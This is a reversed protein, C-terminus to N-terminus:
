LHWPARMAGSLMRNAEDDGVFREGQPDWRLRRGLRIAIDSLHYITTSRHAVEAPAISQKRTRVCELFHLSHNTSRPLHIEHPRLTVKLLSKPHADASFANGYAFSWGESGEFRAGVERYRLGKDTSKFILRVGNAYTCEVRWSIATDNFGDTPFVGRGEVEVPGTRETANGWQAIDIPHVGCGAIWGISYDSRLQWAGGSTPQRVYPIEPAPGLWLDYDLTEPV